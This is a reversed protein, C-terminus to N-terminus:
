LQAQKKRGLRHPYGAPPPPPPQHINMGESGEGSHVDNLKVFLWLLRSRSTLDHM